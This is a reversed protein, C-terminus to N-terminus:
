HKLKSPFADTLASRTLYYASLHRKEPHDRLYALVVDVHQSIKVDPDPEFGEGDPISDV